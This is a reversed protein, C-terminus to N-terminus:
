RVIPLDDDNKTSHRYVGRYMEIEFRTRRMREEALHEFYRVLLSKSPAGLKSLRTATNKLLSYVATSM